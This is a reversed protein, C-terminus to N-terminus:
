PLAGEVPEIIIIVPPTTDAGQTDPDLPDADEGDPVGDCDTDPNYPNTGLILEDDNSIGDNDIDPDLEDPLGDGDQDGQPSNVYPDCGDLIGDGDTDPNLPDSWIGWKTGNVEEGDLLGDGDSDDSLPDTGYLFIEDWDSVGDNDSDSSNPNLGIAQEYLDSLGDGDSDAVFQRAQLKHNSGSWQAAYIAIPSGLSTLGAVANVSAGAYNVGNNTYSGGLDFWNTGQARRAFVFPSSAGTWQAWVALTEGTGRCSISLSRSDIESTIDKHLGIGSGSSGINAWSGGVFRRVWFGHKPPLLVNNTMIRARYQLWGFHVINSENVSLSCLDYAGHTNDVVGINSGLNPWSSSGDWKRCYYAWADWYTVVPRNDPGIEIQPNFYSGLGTIGSDQASGSIGVWNTGNFRRLQVATPNAPRLSVVVPQNQTNVAVAVRDFWNTVRAYFITGNTVGNIAITNTHQKTSASFSNVLVDAIGSSYSNGNQVWNTASWRLLYVRAPPTRQEVWTVVPSDDRDLAMDFSFIGNTAATVGRNIASGGFQEWRGSLDAWSELSADMPAGFWQMVYVQAKGQDDNAQWAVVPRGYRDEKAVISRGAKSVYRLALNGPAPTLPNPDPGRYITAAGSGLTNTGDSIFDGDSDPNDPFTGRLYEDVNNLGDNDIDGFADAPDLPALGYLIEWGDPMGDGDTDPNDPDTGFLFEKYNEAGDNDRDLRMDGDDFPDFGYQWEWWDPMEDGDSDLDLTFDIGTVRNSVPIGNSAYQGAAEGLSFMANADSDIFARIFYNSSPLGTITYEVPFSVYFTGGGLDNTEGQSWPIVTKYTMDWSNSSTVAIVYIDGTASGIYDITGWISPVDAMTINVGSIDGTILTSNDSYIGRPEWADLTNNGNADRFAKIWYSENNGVEENTYAAPGPLTISKAISWSNSDTVWVVFISGTEIGSYSVTGSVKVPHSDIDEHDTKYVMIERADAYGDGDTDLDANGAAYFRVPLGTQIWANTDIWTIQNTGTTPLERVAFSWIEALLDNCTYIDLRNTFDEPYAITVAVSNTKYIATFVINSDSEGEMLMMMGGGEDEEQMMAAAEMVKAQAFLYPEVNEIPILKTRLQVRAPDYIGQWYNVAQLSAKGSYLAAWRSKLYAYPDYGPAPPLSYIEKGESNLFVIERTKPEEIVVLPYVLASYEYTGVLGAIFEKPFAKGDFPLVDPMGSQQLIFDAPPPTIPLYDYQHLVFYQELDYIDGVKFSMLFEYEDPNIVSDSETKEVNSFALTIASVGLVTILAAFRRGHSVIFKRM